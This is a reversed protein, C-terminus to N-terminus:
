GNSVYLQPEICNTPDGLRMEVLPRDRRLAGIKLIDPDLAPKLNKSDKRKFKCPNSGCRSSGIDSAYRLASAPYAGPFRLSVDYTSFDYGLATLIDIGRSGGILQMIEPTFGMSEKAYELQEKIEKKEM